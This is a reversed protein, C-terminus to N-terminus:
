ERTVEFLSQKRGTRKPHRLGGRVAARRWREDDREGGSGNDGVGGELSTPGSNDQMQSTAM